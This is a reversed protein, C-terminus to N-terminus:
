GGPDTQRRRAAEIASALAEVALRACHRRGLPLGGLAELLERSSVALAEDVTRNTVMETLVSGAAIASPCGHTKFTVRALVDGDLRVWVITYNTRGPKGARGKGDADPLEGCNRPNAFHERVRASYLM